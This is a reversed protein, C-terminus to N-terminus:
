ESELWWAAESRTRPVCFSGQVALSRALTLGHPRVQREKARRSRVGM